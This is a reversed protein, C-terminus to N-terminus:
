ALQDDDREREFPAHRATDKWDDCDCRQPVLKPTAIQVM